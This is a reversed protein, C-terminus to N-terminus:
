KRKSSKAKVKGFVFLYLIELIGVTNIVLLAIFWPKSGNKAARWLAWGKWFLSWIALPILMVGFGKWFIDSNGLWYNNGYMM